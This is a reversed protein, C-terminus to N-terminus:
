SVAGPGTDIPLPGGAPGTGTASTIELLPLVDTVLWTAVADAWADQQDADTPSGLTQLRTLLATKVADKTAVM